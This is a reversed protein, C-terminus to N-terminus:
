ISMFVDTNPVIHSIFRCYYIGLWSVQPNLEGSVHGKAARGVIAYVTVSISTMRIHSLSHLAAHDVRNRVFAKQKFTWFEECSQTLHGAFTNLDERKM